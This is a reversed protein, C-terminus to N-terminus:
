PLGKYPSEACYLYSPDSFSAALNKLSLQYNEDTATITRQNDEGENLTYTQKPFLQRVAPHTSQTACRCGSEKYIVGGPASGPNSCNDETGLITFSHRGNTPHVTYGPGNAIVIEVEPWNSDILDNRWCINTRRLNTNGAPILVRASSKIRDNNEHGPVLRGPANRFLDPGTKTIAFVHVTTDQTQTGDLSVM